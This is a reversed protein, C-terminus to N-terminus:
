AREGFIASGVRIMTAGEEIAAEFDHTMGMSLHRMSVGPIGAAAIHDRLERLRRFYPRAGDPDPTYAPITMLGQISLAPCVSLREVLEPAQESTVGSKSQEGSTNIQILAPMTRNLKMLRRNLAEGLAASDISHIMDFIQAAQAAKNTQLHGILHWTARVGILAHKQGAEQVRNEGLDTIGADIAEVLMEPPKTKSVAILLVSSASVGARHAAREMRERVRSINDSIMSM